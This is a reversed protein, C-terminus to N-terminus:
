GSKFLVDFHKHTLTLTHHGALLAFLNKIGKNFFLILRWPKQEVATQEVSNCDTL